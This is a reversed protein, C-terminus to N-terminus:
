RAKISMLEEAMSEDTYLRIDEKLKFAKQHSFGAVSGDERYVHFKAGFVTLIKRRITYSKLDFPM